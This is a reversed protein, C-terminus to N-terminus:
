ARRRWLVAASVAGGLIAAPIVYISALVLGTYGGLQYMDSVIATVIILAVVAVPILAFRVV